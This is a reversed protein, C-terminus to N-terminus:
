IKVWIRNLLLVTNITSKCHSPCLPSLYSATPKEGLNESLIPDAKPSQKITLNAKRESFGDCAAKTTCSKVDKNEPPRVTKM